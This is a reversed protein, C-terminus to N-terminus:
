LCMGVMALVIVCAMYLYTTWPLVSFRGETYEASIVFENPYGGAGGNIGKFFLLSGLFSSALVFSGPFCLISSVGVVLGLVGMCSWLVIYSISPSLFYFTIPYLYLMFGMGSLVGLNMVGLKSFRSIFIGWIIGTVLGVAVFIYGYTNSVENPLFIKYSILLFTIISTMLGSIFLTAKFFKLSFVIFYAGIVLATFGFILNHRELFEWLDNVDLVPCGSKSKVVIEHNCKDLLSNTVLTLEPKKVNRDCVVKVTM